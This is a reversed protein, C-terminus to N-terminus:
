GAKKNWRGNFKRIYTYDDLHINEKIVSLDLHEKNGLLDDLSINFLNSLRKLNEIDPIGKDAEWKTIAQSSVFLKDALQKQSLGANQRALKIKKGLTMKIKENQMM